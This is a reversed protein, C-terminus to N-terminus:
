TARSRILCSRPRCNFHWVRRIPGEQFWLPADKLTLKKQCGACVREQKPIGFWGSQSGKAM